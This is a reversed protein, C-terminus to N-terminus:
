DLFNLFFSFTTYSISEKGMVREQHVPCPLILHSMLSAPHTEEATWCCLQCPCIYCPSPLTFIIVVSKILILFSLKRRLGECNKGLVCFSPPWGKHLSAFACGQWNARWICPPFTLCTKGQGLLDAPSIGSRGEFNKQLATTHGCKCFNEKCIFHAKVLGFLCLPCSQFVRRNSIKREEETKYWVSLGLLLKPHFQFWCM